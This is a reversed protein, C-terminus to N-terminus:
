TSCMRIVIRLYSAVSLAFRACYENNKKVYALHKRFFFFFNEFFRLGSSLRLGLREVEPEEYGSGTRSNLIM